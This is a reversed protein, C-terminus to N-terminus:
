SFAKRLERGIKRRVRTLLSPPRCYRNFYALDARDDPELRAPHRLPFSVPATQMSARPDNADHTHTAEKGWGLNSVLNVSPILSVGDRAQRAAEWAISWADINGPCASDYLKRRWAAEGPFRCWAKWRPSARTTDWGTMQADHHRWARRWSAWCWIMAFRSVYYSSGDQAPHGSLNCGCIQMVRDDDQYRDLLEPCFRFFSPDPLCDDEVVILREHVSFGWDLAQSVAKRCGLREQSFRTSVTCPWDVGELVLRRTEQCREDGEPGDAAVLLHAPRAKRISALVQATVDPRRQILFLVPTPCGEVAEMAESSEGSEMATLSSDWM